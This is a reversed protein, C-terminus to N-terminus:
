ATDDLVGQIHTDIVSWNIGIDSDYEDLLRELVSMAQYYSLNKNRGMVDSIHWSHAVKEVWERRLVEEAADANEDSVIGSDVLRCVMAHIQHVHM